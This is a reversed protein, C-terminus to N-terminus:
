DSISYLHIESIATTNEPNTTKTVEVKVFQGETPIISFLQPEDTDAIVFTGVDEWSDGDKSVWFHGSLANVVGIRRQLSIQSFTHTAKTDITLSHPLPAFGGEWKSHWYTSIDGDFVNAAAGNGSAEITQSSATVTWGTRALQTGVIRFALVYLDKGETPSFLSTNSLRIPLMYDGPQLGGGEITVVLPTETTGKPLSVQPNFSYNADLLKFSTGNEENYTDVYAEDVAFDCTIDWSTNEVDLKFPVEMTFTGIGYQKEVVNVSTSSFQVSPAIIETFQLFVDDRDANISDTESTVYIPLVWVATPDAEMNAKMVDPDVSVTMIKWEDESSFEMHANEISYADLTLLKYNVGELQGYQEDLEGQTLVKIDATATQTPDAGSKIVSYNFVNRDGTDYLTLEQKGNTQLYLIKNYMDPIQRDIDYESEACAGLGLCVAFISLHIVKKM